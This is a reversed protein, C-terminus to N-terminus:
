WALPYRGRLIEGRSFGQMEVEKEKIEIKEVKETM